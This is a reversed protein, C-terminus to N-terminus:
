KKIKHIIKSLPAAILKREGANMGFRWIVASYFVLLAAAGCGFEKWTDVQVHRFVYVAVLAVAVPALSMKGIEKWFKIIDLGQKKHYYWNLIFGQGVINALGVAVACGIAGYYKSLVVQLILSLAGVIVLMLSRYKQQNRAQLISIATNQILPVLTSVFLVLAIYYVEDYSEGAWLLIFQKGLVIFGVLVLALIVYQLRGARIFLDSIDKHSKNQAVMSTIRPLLVNSIGSSFMIYMQMLTIGLAYVAVQITGSTAGLVFQGTSYYFKFMMEGLFVWVSFNILQRIFSWKFSDFRLKVHLKRRCYIFNASLVLINFITQVVVLAVARYGMYLIGVLVATSLLIKLISVSKQFIFHEYASIISGFISMPFTIALNVLLLLIMVRAQRLDEPTMTRDFLWDINGYLVIGVGLAVIGLISYITFFLGFLSYQERVKGEARYKATYRVVAPGFGFDLITLYSIISAVLSYLGYENQGLMRLMFPTYLIGVLANLAIIVYNLIAGAKIQNM